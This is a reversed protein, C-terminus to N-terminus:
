ALVVFVAHGGAHARVLVPRPSDSKIDGYPRSSGGFSKSYVLASGAANLKAVVVDDCDSTCQPRIVSGTVFSNGSVDTAIGNLSADFYTSFVLAGAPSLKSVFGAKGTPEIPNLTPFNSSNTDGAVYSNGAPDSAIGRVSDTSNGGLYTSYILDSRTANLKAVFADNGGMFSQIPNKLPFDLSSSFGGVATNGSPDV